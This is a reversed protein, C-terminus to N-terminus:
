VVPLWLERGIYVIDPPVGVHKRFEERFFVFDGGELTILTGLLFQTILHELQSVFILVNEGVPVDDLPHLHRLSVREHVFRLGHPPWRMLRDCASFLQHLRKLRILAAIFSFHLDHLPKLVLLFAVIAIFFLDDSLFRLIYVLFALHLSEIVGLFCDLDISQSLIETAISAQSLNIVVKSQEFHSCILVEVCM